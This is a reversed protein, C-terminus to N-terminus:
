EVAPAGRYAVSREECIGGDQTRLHLVGNTFGLRYPHADLEAAM